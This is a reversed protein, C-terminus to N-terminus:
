LLITRGFVERVHPEDLRVVELPAGISRFAAELKMADCDGRLDLLTYHEGLLDHLARGDKLWMHPLRSGPRVNPRYVNTDWEGPNDPEDAIIPSGAYTYGFEAGRM